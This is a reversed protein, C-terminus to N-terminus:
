TLGRRSGRRAELNSKIGRPPRIGHGADEQGVGAAVAGRRCHHLGPQILL